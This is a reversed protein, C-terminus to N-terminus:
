IYIDVNSAVDTWDEVSVTLEISSGAVTLTYTYIKGPLWESVDSTKLEATYVADGGKSTKFNVKANTLVQPITFVVGDDNYDDYINATMGYGDVGFEKMGGWRYYRDYTSFYSMQWQLRDVPDSDYEKGFLLTGVPYINNLFMDTVHDFSTAPTVTNKYKVKFRLGSLAHRFTLQVKNVGEADTAPRRTTCAVMFDYQDVTTRYEAVLLKASSTKTVIDSMPYYARFMYNAERHWKQKPSYTWYTVGSVSNDYTLQKPEADFVKYSTAGGYDYSGYLGITNGNSNLSATTTLVSARTGAFHVEDAKESIFDFALMEGADEESNGNCGTAFLGILPLVIIYKVLIKM